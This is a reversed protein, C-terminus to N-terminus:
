DRGDGGGGGAARAALPHQKAESVAEDESDFPGRFEKDDDPNDLYWGRVQPFMGMPGGRDFMVTWGNLNFVM